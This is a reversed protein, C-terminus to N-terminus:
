TLGIPPLGPDISLVSIGYRRTEAALNETLKTLAAKSTAYASRLPWRYVGANSTINLITGPRAARPAPGRRNWRGCAPSM